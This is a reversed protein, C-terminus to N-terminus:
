QWRRPRRPRQQEEAAAVVVAIATTVAIPPAAVATTRRGQVTGALARAAAVSEGLTWTGEADLVAVLWDAMAEITPLLPGQSNGHGPLDVALVAHGHHAFYRAQASWVTRNMSAGHVFLIVPLASDFDKGGTAAFVKHGGVTLEMAM